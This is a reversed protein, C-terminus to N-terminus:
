CTAIRRGNAQLKKLLHLESKCHLNKYRCECVHWYACMCMCMRMCVYKQCTYSHTCVFFHQCQTQSSTRSGSHLRLEKRFDESRCM